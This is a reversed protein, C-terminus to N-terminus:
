LNINSWHVKYWFLIDENLIASNTVYSCFCGFLWLLTYCIVFRELDCIHEKCFIDCFELNVLNGYFVNYALVM